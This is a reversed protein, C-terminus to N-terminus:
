RDWDKYYKELKKYAKTLSKTVAYGPLGVIEAIDQVQHGDFHRLMIIMREFESLQFIANLIHQADENLQVRSTEPAAPVPWDLKRYKSKEKRLNLAQRRTIKLLWCGFANQNNLNDLNEFARYFAEQAADEASHWDGLIKAAVARVAQEYRKVLITFAEINGELVSQIIESDSLL